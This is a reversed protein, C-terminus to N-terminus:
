PTDGIQGSNYDLGALLAQGVAEPLTTVPATRPPLFYSGAALMITISVCLVAARALGQGWLAWPDLLSEGALRAMVRKEFAYPVRTDPPITRAAVILKHCPESDDM